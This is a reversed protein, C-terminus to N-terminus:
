YQLVIILIDHNCYCIIKKCDKDYICILLPEPTVVHAGSDEISRVPSVIEIRYNNPRQLVVGLVTGLITRESTQADFAYWFIQEEFASIIAIAHIIIHYNATFSSIRKCTNYLDSKIRVIVVYTDASYGLKNITVSPISDGQFLEITRHATSLEFNSGSTLQFDFTITDLVILTGIRSSIILIQDRDYIRFLCAYSTMNQAEDVDMITLGKSTLIHNHPLRSSSVLRSTRTTHTVNWIPSAHTGIYDCNFHVNKGVGTTVDSPESIFVVGVCLKANKYM